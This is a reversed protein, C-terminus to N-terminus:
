HGHTREQWPVLGSCSLCGLDLSRASSSSSLERKKKSPLFRERSAVVPSYFPLLVKKGKAGSDERVHLSQAQSFTVFKLTTGLVFCLKTILTLTLFALLCM